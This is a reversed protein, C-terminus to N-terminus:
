CKVIMNAGIRSKKVPESPIECRRGEWREPPWRDVEPAIPKIRPIIENLLIAEDPTVPKRRRRVQKAEKAASSNPRRPPNPETPAASQTRDVRDNGGDRVPSGARHQSRDARRTPNSRRAPHSLVDCILPLDM